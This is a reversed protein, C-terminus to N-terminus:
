FSKQARIRSLTEQTIGLFSAVFNLPLRPIIDPFRENLKQYRVHASDTVLDEIRQQQIIIVYNYLLRTIREAEPFKVYFDELAHYDIAWVITPEYVKVTRLSKRRTVFSIIDGGIGGEAYFGTGIEKGDVLMTNILLGKEILYVEDNIRGPASLIYGKPLEKKELISIFGLKTELSLNHVVSAVDSGSAICILKYISEFIKEM